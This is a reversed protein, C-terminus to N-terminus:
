QTAAFPSWIKVEGQYTGPVPNGAADTAPALDAARTIARCLERETNALRFSRSLKCDTISGDAAVSLTYGLDQTLLGLQTSRRFFSKYDFATLEPPRGDSSAASAPPVSASQVAGEQAALGACPSLATIGVVLSVLGFRVNGMIVGREALVM